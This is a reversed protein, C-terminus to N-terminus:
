KGASVVYAIVDKPCVNICAGCLICDSHEMARAQVMANVYCAVHLARLQHV